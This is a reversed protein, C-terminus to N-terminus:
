ATASPSPSPSRSRSSSPSPSPSPSKSPSPSPSKSPKPSPSKSPKPRVTPSVSPLVPPPIYTPSPRVSPSPKAAASASPTPATTAAPSSTSSPLSRVAARPALPPSPHHGAFILLTLGAAWVAVVWVVLAVNATAARPRIRISGPRILWMAQSFRAPWMSEARRALRRRYAVADRTTSSCLELVQARLGPPLAAAQSLLGALAAPRLAARKRDGCIECQEIHGGVLKRMQETLQGEGGTLLKDLAPCAERGTRTILLTDLAKELRGQARTALAHARSWSMGLTAALDADNLHHSLCLEIVERERPKLEVLIGRILTRLETQGPDDSVDAAEIASQGAADVEDRGGPAKQRLRRLCENRAVAYLWPRLKLVEPFDGLTASTIVFTNKVAEAADAPQRLMWHCYGYLHPAYRDYAVAIGAPDRAAIAAVVERDDM